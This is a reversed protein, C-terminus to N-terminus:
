YSLLQFNHVLAMCPHCVAFDGISGGISQSVLASGMLRFVQTLSWLWLCLGFPLPPQTRHVPAPLSPEARHQPMLPHGDRHSQCFVGVLTALLHLSALMFAWPCLLIDSGRTRSRSDQLTGRRLSCDRDTATAAGPGRRQVGNSASVAASVTSARM